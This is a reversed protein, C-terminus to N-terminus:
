QNEEKRSFGAQLTGRSNHNCEGPEKQGQSRTHCRHSFGGNDSGSNPEGRPSVMRRFVQTLGDPVELEEELTQYEEMFIGERM